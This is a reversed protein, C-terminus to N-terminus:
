GTCFPPAVRQGAGRQRESERKRAAKKPKGLCSEDYESARERASSVSERARQEHCGIKRTLSERSGARQTRLTERMIEREYQRAREQCERIRTLPETQEWSNANEIDSM